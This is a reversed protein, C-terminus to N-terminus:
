NRLPKGTKLMHEIRELTKKEGLLSLFGERELDLLYQESVYTPASLDGGCLIFGIKEAIKRDHDSAFGAFQMTYTGAIVAGLGGQGMVRIDNRPLPAVYGEDAMEVVMRRADALLRDKNVTIRDIKERLIGMEFAEVASTAVKATAINMFIERFVNLEIDGAHYSDSLRVAFEKTGGGAPLLGVGVEVLGIYTEAAARVRDAHMSMECGGGLTMGFPAVVVPIASYRIRMNTNQFMRVAMDLEDYEQEVALMFIMALNAGVSFNEGQNGIVLGKYNKEALDIAYNIGQLVDGGITNMKSNFEVCIVEEGIDIISVGSNKWVMKTSRLNDLIIFDSAGPLDQYSKTKWDYFQKVGNEVQYFSTVGSALMEKVWGAVAFGQAEMAQTTEPVGLIDWQEFAGIEWGFGASIAQDIRFFDDAIEPVRHSVYALLGYTAERIFDAYKEKGNVLAKFQERLGSVNKLSELLPSKVKSQAEYQKTELNLSLIETEGKDNKTKKYFGQGTKDGFLNNDVMYQIYAPLKFVDRREDNPCNDYIGKAVKVATDLGVVDCTRFTASKPHGILPGTLKDVEEVKLGYKEVLHFLDMIAYIGVRNAIFAPTDKCLVTKKGLQISGYQMLFDMVAPDTKPSPILELLPLYRPPNFFHTGCFHRQFDESRGELMTAIPIGSTNSTILSGAKRYKEVQDFLKQKIDLREVVVEIVWDCDAIKALDDEFNGLTVKAVAKKSYVPSPNSKLATDFLNQVIRNRVVKSQLNLGKQSEEPTLENPVIDLLLVPVGINAFHLAIRSGMIGAGLVAVKKIHRNGTAVATQVPATLTTNM